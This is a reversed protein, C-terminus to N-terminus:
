GLGFAFFVSLSLDCLIRRQMEVHHINQFVDQATVLVQSGSDVQLNPGM